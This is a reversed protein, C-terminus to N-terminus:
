WTRNGKGFSYESAVCLRQLFFYIMHAFKTYPIAILMLEGALIHLIVMTQYDYIQHYAMFGTLFPAVAIFLMVYDYFSTIARVRRVFFRRYLFYAGCMLLVVTMSDTLTESWSFLSIGLAEDLLLNHALVFLPTIVLCVHFILTAWSFVPHIGFVNTARFMAMNRIRNERSFWQKILAIRTTIANKSFWGISPQKKFGPPQYQPITKKKSFDTFFQHIQHITGAIFVLLSFWVLPGGVFQYIQHM